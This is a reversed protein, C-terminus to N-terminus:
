ETETDAEQPPPAGIDSPLAPLPAPAARAAAAVDRDPDASLSKLQAACEGLVQAAAPGPRKLTLMHQMVQACVLRVNAVPDKVLYKVLPWIEVVFLAPDVSAFVSAASLLYALREQFHGSQAKGQLMKVFLTRTTQSSQELALLVGGVQTAAAKRIAAIDDSLLKQCLPAVHTGVQASYLHALQSLQVALLLRFRWAHRSLREIDILIPLYRARLNVSVGQLLSGIHALVGIRVEDLDELFVDLSWLITSEVDKKPLQAAILHLCHSLSRRVKLQTDRVLFTFVPELVSWYEGGCARLVAHFHFASNALTASHEKTHTAPPHAVVFGCFVSVLGQMIEKKTAENEKPTEAENVIMKPVSSSLATRVWISPDKAFSLSLPLIVSLREKESLKRSWEPLVDVCGKRVGWVSDKSLKEFLSIYKSAEDAPFFLHFNESISKRVRFEPHSALGVIQSLLQTHPQTHSQQTHPQTPKKAPQEFLRVCVRGLLHIANGVIEFDMPPNAFIHSLLLPLLHIELFHPSTTECVVGVCSKVGATRVQSSTPDTLAASLLPSLVSEKERDSVSASAIKWVGAIQEAAATRVSSETDQLMDLLVPILYKKSEAAGMVVAAASLGSVIHLRIPVVDSYCYKLVKERESLTDDICLEEVWSDDWEASLVAAEGKASTGDDVKAM